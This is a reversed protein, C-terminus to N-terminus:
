VSTRSGALIGSGIGGFNSSYSDKEILAVIDEVDRGDNIVGRSQLEELVTRRDLLGSKFAELLVRVDFNALALSFDTNVTASGSHQINMIECTLEIASNLTDQLELACANLFSGTKSGVMARETATINGSRNQTILDLGWLAMQMELRDLDKWGSEIAAGSHEVYRLDASPSDAHILNKASIVVQGNDNTNLERGFLIPVRAVHLINNQDSSSIWHQQNLEALGQLPPVAAMWSKKRGAFYTIMPIKNLGTTGNDYVVWGSKQDSGKRYVTWIGAELVRIQEITQEGFEGSPERVTEKIRVQTLTPVGGSIEVRGGILNKAPIHVWYPRRGAKKDEAATTRRGDPLSPLDVLIHGIGDILSQALFERSFRTLNRSEMDINFALDHIDQPTDGSLVVPKDFVEGAMIDRTRELGGFLFSRNIRSVYDVYQEGEERPLFKEGAERMGDTGKLLTHSLELKDMMDIYEGSPIAPNNEKQM